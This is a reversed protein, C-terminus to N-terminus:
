RGAFSICGHVGMQGQVSPVARSYLLGEHAFRSKETVAIFHERMSKAASHYTADIRGDASPENLQYRIADSVPQCLLPLPSLSQLRSPSEGCFDTSGNASLTLEDLPIPPIARIPQPQMIPLLNSTPPTSNSPYAISAFAGSLTSSSSQQYMISPTPAFSAAPSPFAHHTYLYQSPSASSTESLSNNPAPESDSWRQSQHTALLHSASTYGPVSASMRRDAPHYGGRHTGHISSQADGLAGELASTSKIAHPVSAGYFPLQGEDGEDMEVDEAFDSDIEEDDDDDDYEFEDIEVGEQASFEDMQDRALPSLPTPVSYSSASSPTGVDSDSLQQSPLITVKPNVTM